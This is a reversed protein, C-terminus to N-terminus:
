ESLLALLRPGVETIDGAGITVILDGPRAFATLRDAVRALDPEFVCDDPGLGTEAAIVSGSVGPIPSEGHSYVELVVVADAGALAPGFEHLFTRTRFYRHPQFAAVVRGAGALERAASLAAIVETPHHSYDDYVRIGNAEGKLEMRRRAGGFSSLGELLIDAPFGLSLGVTFAAAANLANYRGPVSLTVPALVTPEASRAAAAAAAGGTGAVAAAASVHLRFSPFGGVTGLEGLRVDADEAAGYTLVRVGREATAAAVERAAEDDACAVLVGDAALRDAFRQFEDRVQALDAFHDPHDLEINTIVAVHPAYHLFTGDSEDAEVVLVDGTGAYGSEGTSALEGGIVFSPDADCHRLAVTVMSTTTTKGHTGAVARTGPMLAALASARHLLRLGLRRAEVVEINGEPIDTSVVVTDVDALNEPAQGIAVTAGLERLSRVVATDKVDSGSVPLARGLMIRALPAMGVGGIGVFHIRGLREAPVVEDPAPVMM